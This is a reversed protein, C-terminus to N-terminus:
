KMLDYLVSQIYAINLHRPVQEAATAFHRKNLRSVLVFDGGFELQECLLHAALVVPIAVGRRATPLTM